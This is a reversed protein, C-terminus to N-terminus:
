AEDRGIRGLEQVTRFVSHGHVALGAIAAFTGVANMHKASMGRRNLKRGLDKGAYHGTVGGAFAGTAHGAIAGAGLGIGITRVAQSGQHGRKAAAYGGAVTGTVAGGVAGIKSGIKAGISSGLIGLGKQLRKASTERDAVWYSRRVMGKKGRVLKTVKRLGSKSGM